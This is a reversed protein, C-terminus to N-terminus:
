YKFTPLRKQSNKLYYQNVFSYRISIEHAGGSNRWGLKSLTFDYSYGIDLGSDLTIGVMTILAENNPLGFNTPLGRYWLGLILPELYLETGIDLQDYVGQKKYNFAFSLTREQQTNNFYDNISGALLDFKVGGHAAYKIALRDQDDTLFSLEPRLLHHGSIGFWYKNNYYLLGTHLDAFTQNRDDMNNIGNGPNIVGRDIDLQTSLIVEDFSASRTAYSGQAGMHLFGNEGVRLRYSYLLGIENNQFGTLSEKSGNVIIGIGSNKSDIFHDAYASFVVFTQNLSPWQNRFNFGVRTMESSGTFAPNLYMSAAYFQSFQVDQSKAMFSLFMFIITLVNRMM